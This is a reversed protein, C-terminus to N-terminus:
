QIANKYFTVLQKCHNEQEFSAIIKERNVPLKSWKRLLDMKLAMDQIDREKTLYGNVNDEVLEPIGSHFTSLIPLEMAMAEMIANPIGEMDGQESTVSHHVFVDAENMLAKAKESDVLGPFSILETIGFSESLVQMKSLLPGTGALILIKPLDPHKEHFLKFAQITFLHGKKETFSSVQLLTYRKKIHDFSEQTPKFNNVNIGYYLLLKKNLIGLAKEMRHTMDNSVLIFYPDFKQKFYKINRIYRKSNLKHSADFGHFSIFIPISKAELNKLFWWSEFGFHTHIIDPQFEDIIQNINEKLISDSYSFLFDRSQLSHL